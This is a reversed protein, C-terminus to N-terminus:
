DIVKVTLNKGDYAFAFEVPKDMTNTIYLNQHVNSSTTAPTYYIAVGYQKPVEPINAFDHNTPAVAALGADKAAWYIISALHCVGDGVLWGDSKYGEDSAFDANMTKVVKGDFQPLVDKHFAFVENPKLSFSYTQPKNVASWDIKAPDTVKGNMYALTLLINDKFIGSVWPDPYRDTMSFSRQARVDSAGLVYDGALALGGAPTIKTASLAYMALALLTLM